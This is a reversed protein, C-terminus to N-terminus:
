QQPIRSCPLAAPAASAPIAARVSILCSAKEAPQFCLNLCQCANFSADRLCQCAGFSAGRLPAAPFGLACARPHAAHHCFLGQFPSAPGVRRASKSPMLASTHSTTCMRMPRSSRGKLAPPKHAGNGLAQSATWRNIKSGAQTPKRGEQSRPRGARLM